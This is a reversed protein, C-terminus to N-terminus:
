NLNYITEKKLKQVAQLDPRFLKRALIYDTIANIRMEPITGSSGDEFLLFIEANALLKLNSKLDAEYEVDFMKQAECLEYLENVIEIERAKTYRPNGYKDVYKHLKIILEALSTSIQKIQDTLDYLEKLKPVTKQILVATGIKRLLKHKVNFDELHIFNSFSKLLKQKTPAVELFAVEDHAGKLINYLHKIDTDGVDAYLHVKHLNKKIYNLSYISTKTIPMDNYNSAVLKHLHINEKMNIGPAKNLERKLKQEAQYQKIYADPVKSNNFVKLHPIVPLIEKIILKVIDRDFRFKSDGASREASVKVHSLYRSYLRKIKINPSVYYQLYNNQHRIYSKAVPSLDSVLCIVYNEFHEKLQNISHSSISKTFKDNRLTVSSNFGSYNMIQAHINLFDSKRYLVGNLTLFSKKKPVKVVVTVKNADELLPVEKPLNLAEIYSPIDTYDQTQHAKILEEIEEVALDLAAEIKLIGEETYLIQERNPTVQLDGIEFPLTIPYDEVEVPYSKNLAYINLPYKVKGLVLTLGYTQTLNNVLFNNYRKIKFSNFEEERWGSGTNDAFYLNEFYVLQEKIAGYYDTLKHHPIPIKVEVGNEEETPSQSLLDISSKNADKYMLYHYKIGDFVSTVNVVDSCSLASFRGIGFGGIQKNDARKTSSGINRYISNFREPSLGVGFDQIRCFTNNETDVGLELLVPKDTGAEIHSDWANSVTERIFSEVPKSYLNTSLITVIFDINATDIGVANSQIDGISIADGQVEDFKM